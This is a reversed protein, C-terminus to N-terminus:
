SRLVACEWWPVAVDLAHHFRYFRAPQGTPTVTMAADADVSELKTQHYRGQSDRWNHASLVLGTILGWSEVRGPAQADIGFLQVDTWELRMATHFDETALFARTENALKSVEAATLFALRARAQWSPESKPRDLLTSIRTARADAFDPWSKYGHEALARV